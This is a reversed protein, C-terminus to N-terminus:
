LKEIQSIPHKLFATLRSHYIGLQHTNVRKLHPTQSNKNENCLVLPFTWVIISERTKKGVAVTVFVCM